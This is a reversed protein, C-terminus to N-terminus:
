SWIRILTLIIFVIWNIAVTISGVWLLTDSIDYNETLKSLLVLMILTIISTEQIKCLLEM